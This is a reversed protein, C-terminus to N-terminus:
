VAMEGQVGGAPELLVFTPSPVAVVTVARGDAHHAAVTGSKECAAYLWAGDQAIHRPSGGGAAWSSDWRPHRPDALDFAVITDAGRHSAHSAHSANAGSQQPPVDRWGKRGLRAM